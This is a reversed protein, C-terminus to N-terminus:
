VTCTDGGEGAQQFRRLQPSGMHVETCCWSTGQCYTPAYVSMVSVYTNRTERSGHPRRQGVSSAKLLAAVTRSSVANWVEGAEKWASTAREDLALGVGENRVAPGEECLPHGSHHFTYGDVQSVEEAREGVSRVQPRDLAPKCVACDVMTCQPRSRCICCDGGVSEM